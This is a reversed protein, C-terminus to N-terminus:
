FIVINGSDQHHLTNNKNMEKDMCWFWKKHNEMVDAHKSEIFRTCTKRRWFAHANENEM